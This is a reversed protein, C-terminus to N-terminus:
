KIFRELHKIFQVKEYKMELIVKNCGLSTITDDHAENQNRTLLFDMQFLELDMKELNNLIFSEIGGRDLVRVFQLVKITENETFEM